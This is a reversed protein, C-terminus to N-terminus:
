GGFIKRAVFVVAAAISVLVLGLVFLTRIADSDTPHHTKGEQGRPQPELDADRKHEQPKAM